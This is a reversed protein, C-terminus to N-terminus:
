IYRLSTLVEKAASGVQGENKELHQLLQRRLERYGGSGRFVLKATKEIDSLEPASATRWDYTALSEAIEEIFRNLIRDHLFTQLSETVEEEFDAGKESRFRQLGLHEAKVYCLDNTVHLIARIGQDTNILTYPGYFAPDLTHEGEKRLSKAWDRRCSKISGLVKQGVFILFAAQQARSWPLVKPGVLAGFLGGPTRRTEASKIYAAMLSRVWAAQSVMKLGPEGLMNIHHYWPSGEHSWLVEVLEQARTERYIFYGEDSRELWDETRLLPYLDYALSANIRKPKINITWFLYAQWSIDLGHFAVVPLEFDSDM